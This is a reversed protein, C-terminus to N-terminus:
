KVLSGDGKWPNGLAQLPSTWKLLGLNIGNVMMLPRLAKADLFLQAVPNSDETLRTISSTIVDDAIRKQSHPLNCGNLVLECEETM